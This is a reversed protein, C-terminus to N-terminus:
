NVTHTFFTTTNLHLPCCRKRRQECLLLDVSYGNNTKQKETLIHLTTSVRSQDGVNQQILSGFLGVFVTQSLSDPGQQPVSVVQFSRVLVM